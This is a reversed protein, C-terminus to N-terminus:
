KWHDQTIKFSKAFYETVRLTARYRQSLWAEHQRTQPSSSAAAVDNTPRQGAPTMSRTAPQRSVAERAQRDSVSPRAARRQRRRRRCVQDAFHWSRRYPPALSSTLRPKAPRAFISVLIFWLRRPEVNPCLWLYRGTGGFKQSDSSLGKPSIVGQLNVGTFIRIQQHWKKTM